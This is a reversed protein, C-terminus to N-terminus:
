EKPHRESFTQMWYSHIDRAQEITLGFADKLYPSAGWMNVVGSDRLNDLYKLHEDECFEPRLTNNM